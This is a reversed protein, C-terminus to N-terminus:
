VIDEFGLLFERQGTALESKLEDAHVAFYEGAEREEAKVFGTTKCGSTGSGKATTTVPSSIANTFIMGAQSLKNNINKGAPDFCGGDNAKASLQVPALLLLFIFINKM